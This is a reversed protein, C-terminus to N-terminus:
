QKDYPPPEKAAKLIKSLFTKYKQMATKISGNCHKTPSAHHNQNDPVRIINQSNRKPCRRTNKM